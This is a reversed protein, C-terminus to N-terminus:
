FGDPNISLRGDDSLGIQGYDENQIKLSVKADADRSSYHTVLEAELVQINARIKAARKDLSNVECYDLAAYLSVLRHFHTAFGPTKTTDTTIFYSAGRQFQVELGSSSAYSPKPHLFFSNGVKDYKKPDGAAATLQSDTLDRRDIPDLTIWNGQQDKIRVRQVKLHTVALGYDQQSAVLSTTAIPLDTNNTDDYQWKGDSKMVLAVARDLAFNANRTFDVLPYSTTDTNAIGCWFRADSYLDANDAHSNFQM